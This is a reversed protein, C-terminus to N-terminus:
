LSLVSAVPLVYRQIPARVSKALRQWLGPSDYVEMTLVAAGAGHLEDISFAFTEFHNGRYGELIDRLYRLVEGSALCFTVLDGVEDMREKLRTIFIEEWRPMKAIHARSATASIPSAAMKFSAREFLDLEPLLKDVLESFDSPFVALVNVGDRIAIMKWMTHIRRDRMSPLLSKHARCSRGMM